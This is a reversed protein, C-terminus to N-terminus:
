RPKHLNLYDVIFIQEYDHGPYTMDVWVFFDVDKIKGRYLNHLKVVFENAQADTDLPIRKYKKNGEIAKGLGSFWDLFAQDSTVSVPLGAARVETPGFGALGAMMVACLLLVRM